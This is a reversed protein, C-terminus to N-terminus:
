RGFAGGGPDTVRGLEGELPAGSSSLVRVRLRRDTPVWRQAARRTTEQTAALYRARDAEFSYVGDPAQVGAIRLAHDLIRAPEDDLHRLMIRRARALEAANPGEAQLGEILEDVAEELEALTVGEHVGAEIAFVSALDMSSQGVRIFRALRREEQLARRFRERLVGAVLDLEADEPALFPPTIWALRLAPEHIAAEVIAVREGQFRPLPPRPRRRDMPTSRIPGFHQQVLARAEAVQVDGVIALRANEPAYHRQFFWQVEPLGIDDLDVASQVSGHYPHQEPFLLRFLFEGLRGAPENTVRQLIEQRVIERQQNVHRPELFSLLYAMRHAELWLLYPLRDKPIVTYYRTTDAFTAANSQTAGAADLVHFVQGDPVGVTGAYMLHETLHALHGYGAPEDRWGVRYSVAVAVRPLRSDEVVM